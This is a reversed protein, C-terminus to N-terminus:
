NDDRSEDFLEERTKFQNTSGKSAQSFVFEKVEFAPGKVKMQKKKGETKTAKVM